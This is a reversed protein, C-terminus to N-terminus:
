LHQKTSRRRVASRHTLCQWRYWAAASEESPFGFNAVIDIYRVSSSRHESIKSLLATRSPWRWYLSQAHYKAIDFVDAFINGVVEFDEVAQRVKGYAEVIIALFLNLLSGWVVFIFIIVYIAFLTSKFDPMEGTIFGNYSTQLTRGIDSYETLSSGFTVLGLGSLLANVFFFLLLWHFMDNSAVIM